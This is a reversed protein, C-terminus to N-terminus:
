RRCGSSSACTFCAGREPQHPDASSVRRFMPEAHDGLRASQGEASYIYRLDEFTEGTAPVHQRVFGALTFGAKEAVRQSERHARGVRLEIVRVGQEAILWNTAVIITRTAASRRAPRPAGGLRCAAAARRQWHRQALSSFQPTTGARGAGM